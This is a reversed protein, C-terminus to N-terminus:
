RSQRTMLLAASAFTAVAAAIGMLINDWVVDVNTLSELAFFAFFVVFAVLLVTWWQINM